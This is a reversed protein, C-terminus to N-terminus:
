SGKAFYDNVVRTVAAVILEIDSSTVNFPPSIIIHDGQAGDVTGTGPYMNISYEEALGLECIEMAVHAEAPFPTATQKDAVFEVGWFFGRGRINGVNPHDGLEEKLRKSLLAGLNRVNALLEEEQIIRQVELAAACAAPHGQYTHGHVFASGNTLLLCDVIRPL